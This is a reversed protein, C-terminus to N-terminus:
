SGLIKVRWASVDTGSEGAREAGGGVGGRSDRNGGSMAV